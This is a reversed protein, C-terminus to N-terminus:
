RSHRRRLVARARRRRGVLIINSIEEAEICGAVDSEGADDVVIVEYRDRPYDLALLRTLTARLAEPRRFTPVVISFTPAGTM